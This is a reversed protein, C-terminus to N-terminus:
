PRPASRSLRRANAGARRSVPKLGASAVKMPAQHMVEMAKSAPASSWPMMWWRLGAAVMEQSVGAGTWMMALWSQQFATVKELGMTMFEKRDRASPNPGALAMRTLRHSVVFPVSFALETMQAFVDGAAATNM